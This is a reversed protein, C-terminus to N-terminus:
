TEHLATTIRVKDNLLPTMSAGFRAMELALETKGILVDNVPSPDKLVRLLQHFASLYIADAM